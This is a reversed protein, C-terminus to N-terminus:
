DDKGDTVRDLLFNLEDRLKGNDWLVYMVHNGPTAPRIVMGIGGRYTHYVLDGKEFPQFIKDIQSRMDFEDLEQRLDTLAQYGGWIKVIRTEM